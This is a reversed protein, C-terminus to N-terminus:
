LNLDNIARDIAGASLQDNLQLRKIKVETLIEILEPIIGYQKGLLGLEKIETIGERALSDNNVRGVLDAFQRIINYRKPPALRTFLPYVYSWQEEGGFHTYLKLLADYVAAKADSELKKAETLATTPDVESLANLAAAQIAYSDASLYKKFRDINKESKLKGLVVIAAARAMNNDDHDAINILLPLVPEIRTGPLTEWVHLAKIRIAASPDVLAGTLIKGSEVEAPYKIAADLAELRDLYLPAHFFQYAYERTSKIEVKEAILTKDADTNVLYPQDNLPITITDLRNRIIAQKRLTGQATYLDVALPIIFQHGGQLQQVYITETKEMENWQYSTKIIPHGAGFFWQEFFWNLDM